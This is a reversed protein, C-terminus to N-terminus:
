FFQHFILFLKNKVLHKSKDRVGILKGIIQGLSKAHDTLTFFDQFTFNAISWCTLKLSSLGESLILEKSRSKSINVQYSFRSKQPDLFLCPCILNFPTETSSTKIVSLLCYVAVFSLSSNFPILSCRTSNLLSTISVTIPSTNPVKLTDSNTWNILLFTLNVSTSTGKWNDKSHMNNPFTQSNMYWITQTHWSHVRSLPNLVM